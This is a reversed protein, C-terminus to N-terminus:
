RQTFYYEAVSRPTLPEALSKMDSNLTNVSFFRPKLPNTSMRNAIQTEVNSRRALSGVLRSLYFRANDGQKPSNAVDVLWNIQAEKELRHYAEEAMKDDESGLLTLLMENGAMGRFFLIFSIIATTVLGYRILQLVKSPGFRGLLISILLCLLGCAILWKVRYCFAIWETPDNPFLTNM